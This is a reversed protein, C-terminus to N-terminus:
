LKNKLFANLIQSRIYFREQTSNILCETIILLDIHECHKKTKKVKKAKNSFRIEHWQCVDQGIEKFAFM